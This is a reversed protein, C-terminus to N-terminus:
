FSNVGKFSSDSDLRRQVPLWFGPTKSDPTSEQRSDCWKNLGLGLACVLLEQAFLPCTAVCSNPLFLTFSARPETRSLNVSPSLSHLQSGCLSRVSLSLLRTQYKFLWYRMRFYLFAAHRVSLRAAVTRGAFKTGRVEVKRCYQIHVTHLVYQIHGSVM